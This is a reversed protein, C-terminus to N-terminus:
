PTEEGTLAQIAAQAMAYHRDDGVQPHGCECRADHDAQALVNCLTAVDVPPAAVAPVLQVADALLRPPTVWEGDVRSYILGWGQVEHLTPSWWLQPIDATM